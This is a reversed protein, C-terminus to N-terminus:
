KKKEKKKSIKDVREKESDFFSAVEPESMRENKIKDLTEIIINRMEESWYGRECAFQIFTDLNRFYMGLTERDKTHRLNNLIQNLYLYIVGHLRRGINKKFNRETKQRTKLGKSVMSPIQNKLRELELQMETIRDKTFSSDTEVKGLRSQFVSVSNQMLDSASKTEAMVSEIKETRKDIRKVDKNLNLISNGFTVMRDRVKDVRSQIRPVIGKLNSTAEEIRGFKYLVNQFDRKSMFVLVMVVAVVITWTLLAIILYFNNTSQILAAIEGVELAVM